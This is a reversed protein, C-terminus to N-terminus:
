QDSQNEFKHFTNKPPTTLLKYWIELDNQCLLIKVHFKPNKVFKHYM